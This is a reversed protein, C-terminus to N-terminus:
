IKRFFRRILKKLPSGMAIDVNPYDGPEPVTIEGLAQRPERQIEVKKFRGMGDSYELTFTTGMFELMQKLDFRSNVAQDGVSHIVNGSRLGALHAPSGKIVDLVMLGESPPVFHPEGQLEERRGLYIVLEHGLPSFLAPLLILHSYHSAVVSFGLLVMSYIALHGASRKACERPPSSIALEGYGLAAVVPFIHYVAEQETAIKWPRILPWWEPMEILEGPVQHVAGLLVMMVALPIPWFKQLNFAGVVRGAPNRVYVALPDQHGSLLILVSEVLHLIAVLGMLGPINIDPYGFLLSFIALIGGAYAFCLFRPSFLMLLLAVVWLWAVGIGSITVGFLIMMFSGLIGGIIGYVLSVLTIRLVSDRLGYIEEKIKLMRGYQMWVLLVVLWFFPQIMVNLVVQASHSLVNLWSFEM